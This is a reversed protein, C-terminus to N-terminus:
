CNFLEKLLVKTSLDVTYSFSQILDSVMSYKTSKEKPSIVILLLLWKIKRKMLILQFSFSKKKTVIESDLIIVNKVKGDEHNAMDWAPILALQGSSEKDPIRNLRTM